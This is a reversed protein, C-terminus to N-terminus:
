TPIRADLYPRTDESYSEGSTLDHLTPERHHGQSDQIIEEGPEQGHRSIRVYTADRQRPPREPGM